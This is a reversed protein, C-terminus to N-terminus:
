TGYGAVDPQSAAASMATDVHNMMNEATAATGVAKVMPGGNRHVTTHAKGGALTVKAHYGNEADKVHEEGHGYNGQKKFGAGELKGRMKNHSSIQKEVHGLDGKSAKGDDVFVTHGGVQRMDGSEDIGVVKRQETKASKPPILATIASVYNEELIREARNVMAFRTISDKVQPEISIAPLIFPTSFTETLVKSNRLYKVFEMEIVPRIGDLSVEPVQFLGNMASCMLFNQEVELPTKADEFMLDLAPQLGETVGIALQDYYTGIDRANSLTVKGAANLDWDAAYWCGTHNAKVIVMGPKGPYVGSVILELDEPDDSDSFLQANDQVADNVKLSVGEFANFELMLKAAALTSEYYSAARSLAIEPLPRAVIAQAMARAESESYGKKLFSDRHAEFVQKYPGLRVM